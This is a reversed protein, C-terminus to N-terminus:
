TIHKPRREALPCIDEAISRAKASDAESLGMAIRSTEIVELEEAQKKGDALLVEWMAELADVRAEYSVTERILKGFDDTGPAAADLKECTARMKAADVANLGFFRTLLQDILSIEVFEYCNDSKAVRVMLAGLALKEDPEPLPTPKPAAFAKLLRSLM